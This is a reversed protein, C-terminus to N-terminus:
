PAGGIPIGYRECEARICQLDPPVAAPGAPIEVLTGTPQGISLSNM